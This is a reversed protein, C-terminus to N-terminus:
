FLPAFCRGGTGAHLTPSMRLPCSLEQMTPSSAVEVHSLWAPNELEYDKKSRENKTKCLRLDATEGVHRVRRWKQKTQCRHVAHVAKNPPDLLRGEELVSSSLLAITQSRVTFWAIMEPIPRLEDKDIASSIMPWAVEVLSISM